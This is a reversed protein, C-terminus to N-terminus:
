PNAESECLNCSKLGSDLLSILSKYVVANLKCVTM